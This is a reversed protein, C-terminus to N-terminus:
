RNSGAPQACRICHSCIFQRDVCREQGGADRVGAWVDAGQKPAENDFLACCCPLLPQHKSCVVCTRM